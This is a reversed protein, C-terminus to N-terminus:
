PVTVVPGSLSGDPLLHLGSEADDVRVRLLHDGPPLDVPSFVLTSTDATVDLEVQRSAPVGGPAPDAETALLAARQGARVPPDVLVTVTPPPGAAFAPTTVVPRVLVVATNSRGVERDRPPDGLPRTRLVRLPHMGAALGDPLGTRIRDTGAAPAPTRRGGIEVVMGEGGLDHGHVVLSADPAYDLLQPEVSDIVPRLGPVVHVGRGMVPPGTTIEVEPEIVVVSVEIAVSLAYPSQFTSWLNSLEEITLSVPSIRIREFQEALDADALFSTPDTLLLDAIAAEIRDRTLVPERYLAGLTAGALREPLMASTAGRFTLLYHLDLALRPQDTIAGTGDRHPLDQNRMSPSPRAAYLFVNARGRDANGTPETPRGVTVERSADVDETAARVLAALVQTVAGIATANSM